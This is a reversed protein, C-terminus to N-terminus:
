APKHGLHQLGLVIMCIIAILGVLLILAPKLFLSIIDKHEDLVKIMLYM